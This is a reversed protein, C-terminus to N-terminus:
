KEDNEEVIQTNNNWVIGSNDNTKSGMITIGDSNDSKKIVLTFNIDYKELAKTNLNELSALVSSKAEELEIDEVCVIKIYIVKGKTKFTISDVLEDKKTKDIYDNKNKDTIPYKKIDELRSGYSSSSGGFFYTSIVVVIVVFCIILISLLVLLIKNNTWIKKIKKM